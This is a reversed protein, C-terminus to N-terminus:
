GGLLFLLTKHLRALYNHLHMKEDCVVILPELFRFAHLDINNNFLVSFLLYIFLYALFLYSDVLQHASTM